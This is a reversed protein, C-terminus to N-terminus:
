PKVTHTLTIWPKGDIALIKRTPRYTLCQDVTIYTCYTPRDTIIQQKGYDATPVTTMPVLCSTLDQITDNM